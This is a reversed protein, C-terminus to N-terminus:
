RACDCVHVCTCYCLSGEPGTNCPPMPKFGMMRLDMVHEGKAAHLPERKAKRVTKRKKLLFPGRAKSHSIAGMLEQGSWLSANHPAHARAESTIPNGQVGALSPPVLHGKRKEECQTPCTYVLQQPSLVRRGGRGRLAHCTCAHRTCAHVCVPM